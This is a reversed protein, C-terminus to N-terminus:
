IAAYRFDPLAFRQREIGEVGMGPADYSAIYDLDEVTAAGEQGTDDKCVTNARAHHLDGRAGPKVRQHRPLGTAQIFM